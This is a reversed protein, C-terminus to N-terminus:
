IHIEILHNRIKKATQVFHNYDSSKMERQKSCAIECFCCFNGCGNRRHNHQTKYRSQCELGAAGHSVSKREYKRTERLPRKQSTSILLISRLVRKKHEIFYICQKSLCKPAYEWKVFAGAFPSVFTRLHCTGDERPCGPVSHEFRYFVCSIPFGGSPQTPIERNKAISKLFSYSFDLM